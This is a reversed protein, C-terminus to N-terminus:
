NSEAQSVSRRAELFDLPTILFVDEQYINIGAFANDIVGNAVAIGLFVISGDPYTAVVPSGSLYYKDQQRQPLTAYILGEFHDFGLRRLPVAVPIGSEVENTVLTIGSLLDYHEIGFETYEAFEVVPEDVSLLMFDSLTIENTMKPRLEKGPDRHGSWGDSLVSYEVRHGNVMVPHGPEPDYRFLHAATLITHEDIAVGTLRAPMADALVPYMYNTNELLVVGRTAGAPPSHLCGASLGLFLVGWVAHILIRM